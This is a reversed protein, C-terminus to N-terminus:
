NMFIAPSHTALILQIHPAWDRIRGILQQQWEIHLSMEPEDMFIVGPQTRCTLISLLIVLMQKEGASLKRYPIMEGAQLFRITSTDTRDISKGTYTFFEDVVDQFQKTEEPTIHLTGYRKVLDDLKQRQLAPYDAMRIFDCLIGDAQPDDLTVRIDLLRGTDEESVSGARLHAATQTLITTKGIGNMGSLINVDPRLNWDVNYRQWLGYIEIRTLYHALKDMM